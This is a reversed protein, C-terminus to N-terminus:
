NEKGELLEVVTKNISELTATDNVECSVVQERISQLINLKVQQARIMMDVNNLVNAQRRQLDELRM